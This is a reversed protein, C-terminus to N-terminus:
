FYDIKTHMYFLLLLQPIDIGKGCFYFFLLVAYITIFIYFPILILHVALGNCESEFISYLYSVCRILETTCAVCQFIILRRNTINICLSTRHVTYLTCVIGQDLKMKQMGASSSPPSWRPTWTGRLGTTRAM